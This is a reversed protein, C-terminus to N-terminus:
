WRDPYIVEYDRPKKKRSRFWLALIIGTLFGGIHAWWGIGPTGVAANFLQTLFWFFIFVLAPVQVILPFFFFPVILNISSLPLLVIYAGMVASIAGSAGVLPVKSSPSMLVQSLSAAIGGIFYILIYKFKGLIDEVNDGFIWLFLMNGFIHTFGGHIFLSTILTIYVPYNILPPIDIGKTIEFPIVGYKMIFIDYFGAPKGFSYFYVIANIIIILVTIVPSSRRQPTDSIPMM